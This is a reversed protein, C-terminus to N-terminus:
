YFADRISNLRFGGLRFEMKEANDSIGKNSDMMKKIINIRNM